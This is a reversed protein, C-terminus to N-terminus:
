GAFLHYEINSVPHKVLDPAIEATIGSPATKHREKRFSSLIHPPAVIALRATNDQVAEKVALATTQSAPRRSAKL